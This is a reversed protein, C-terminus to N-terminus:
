GNHGVMKSSHRLSMNYDVLYEYRRRLEDKDTLYKNVRKLYNSREIGFAQSVQTGLCAYKLQWNLIVGIEEDTIVSINKERFKKILKQAEIDSILYQLRRMENIDSKRKARLLDKYFQLINNRANEQSAEEDLASYDKEFLYILSKFSNRNYKLLNEYLVDEPIQFLESLLPLKARFTLAIHKLYQWQKEETSGLVELKLTTIKNTEIITLIKSIQAGKIKGDYLNQQRLKNVKNFLEEGNPFIKLFRDYDTLRRGVTSSSIGTEKELEIDSYNTKLFLNVLLIIEEKIKQEQEKSVVKM